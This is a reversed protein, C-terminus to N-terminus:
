AQTVTVGDRLRGVIELLHNARWELMPGNFVGMPIWVDAPEPASFSQPMVGIVTSPRADLTVTAGIVDSRGGLSRQWFGHSIVVVGSTGPRNEDESFFRGLAPQVGLTRAFNASVVQAQVREVERDHAVNFGATSYAALETFSRSQARWDHFDPIGSRMGRSIEDPGNERVFVLREAERYPLPRLLVGNVAAFVAANAGIGLALLLLTVLTFAPANRMMRLAFRVDQLTTM